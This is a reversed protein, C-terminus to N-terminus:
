AAERNSASVASHERVDKAIRDILLAFGLDEGLRRKVLRCAHM